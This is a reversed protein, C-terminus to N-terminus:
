HIIGVTPSDQWKNAPQVIAAVEPLSLQPFAKIASDPTCNYVPFPCAKGFIDWDRGHEIQEANRMGKPYDPHWHAEGDKHQGDYGLLIVASPNHWGVINILQMGTLKGGHCHGHQISYGIEGDWSLYNAKFRKAHDISGSWHECDLPLCNMAEVGYKRWWIEDMAHFIKADPLITYGMNCTAINWGRERVFDVQEPTLSPGSAICVWISNM